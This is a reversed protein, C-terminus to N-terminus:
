RAMRRARERFAERDVKMGSRDAEEPWDHFKAPIEFRPLVKELSMRLREPEVAGAARVFAVPRNGWKEDPVPVVVAQSVGEVACLAAEIEEPQINEGGSIFMNDKRGRVTLREEDDLAGLDKTHFWGEDDVARTLIGEEVYGAFLTQGRVLIEGDSAIRLERHPLTWGSTRLEEPSVGATATVQSAMETLGYSTRVPLGRSAAEGLLSAPIGSGGLLVAKLTDSPTGEDLLRRLQAAVLSAHTIGYRSVAEGLREGPEPLAIAAGSLICRFLISLGGVHYLPLSHLWLNGPGLPINENSGLANYYHNAFTHLAAKPRGSSGSTFVITSPQDLDMEVSDRHEERSGDALVTEPSLKSAAPETAALLDEDDSIVAGCGASRLLSAVRGPPFRTSLPCAIAGARILALLLVIYREDKGAYLAVRAGRGCGLEELRSATSSVRRDLSAYTSSGGASVIAPAEPSERAAIWLPCPVRKGGGDVM